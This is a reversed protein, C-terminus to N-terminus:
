RAHHVEMKRLRENFRWFPCKESMNIIIEDPGIYQFGVIYMCNKVLRITEDWQRAMMIAAQRQLIFNTAPVANAPIVPKGM